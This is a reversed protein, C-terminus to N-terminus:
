TPPAEIHPIGNKAIGRSLAYSGIAGVSVLASYKEPLGALLGCLVTAITLWFETTKYGAKTEQIVEPLDDIFDTVAPLPHTPQDVTSM